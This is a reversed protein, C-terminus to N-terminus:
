SAQGLGAYMEKSEKDPESTARHAFRGMPDPHNEAYGSRHM